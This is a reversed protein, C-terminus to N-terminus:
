SVVITKTKQEQTKLLLKQFSELFHNNEAKQTLDVANATGNM